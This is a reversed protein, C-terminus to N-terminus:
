DFLTQTIGKIKTIGGDTSHNVLDYSLLVGLQNIFLSSLLKKIQCNILCNIYM